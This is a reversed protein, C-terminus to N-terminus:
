TKFSGYTYSLEGDIVQSLKNDSYVTTSYEYLNGLTDVYNERMRKFFKLIRKM